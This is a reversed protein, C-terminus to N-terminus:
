VKMYDQFHSGIITKLVAMAMPKADKYSFRKDMFYDELRVQSQFYAVKLAVVRQDHVPDTNGWDNLGTWLSKHWASIEDKEANTLARPTLYFAARESADAASDNEKVEYFPDLDTAITKLLKTEEWDMFNGGCDQIRLNDSLYYKLYIKHSM